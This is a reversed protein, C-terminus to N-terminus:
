HFNSASFWEWMVPVKSSSLVTFTITLVVNTVGCSCVVSKLDFSNM